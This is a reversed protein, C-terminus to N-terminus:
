VSEYKEFLAVCEVHKTRSFLDIPQVKILGYGLEDLIKADRAATAPNCSIMVIKSPALKSLNLLVQRECGKRAPDVIVADPKVGRLILETLGEGADSCIFEVNQVSNEKANYKASKVSEAVYEVGYIKKAKGSLYLGITGIGSYIDFITKDKPEVFEEAIKYLKEAVPTNVQYFTKPTVRAGIGCMRDRLYERGSFIIDQDNFNLIVNTKEKNINLTIGVIKPYAELLKKALKKFEPINRRAVFTLLIEESYHGRRIQVHRLVGSHESESYISIKERNIFDQVTLMIDSFVAPQLLCTEHPVIDHSNPRYFGYGVQGFKDKQLPYQAKNRYHCPKTNKVIPFIKPKLCGIRRFANKVIEEKAKCEADYSIHLFDCGGCKEFAPCESMIRDPSPTIIKETKGYAYNNKVKLVRAEIMDGAATYPVFVTLGDETKGVGFGDSSISVIKLSIIDNKVM